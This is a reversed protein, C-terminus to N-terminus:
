TPDNCTAANMSYLLVLALSCLMTEIVLSKPQVTQARRSAEHLASLSLYIILLAFAM